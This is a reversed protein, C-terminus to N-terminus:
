ATRWKAVLVGDVRQGESVCHARLVAEIEFGAKNLVRASAQHSAYYGATVKHAGLAQFCMDTVAQVAETAYGSNWCRKDWVMFSLEVRHHFPELHLLLNGLHRQSDRRFMGLLASRQPGNYSRVYAVAKEHDWHQHRAETYRVVEADNLAAVYEATIDGVQFPRITLRATQLHWPSFGADSPTTRQRASPM